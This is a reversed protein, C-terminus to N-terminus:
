DKWFAVVEKVKATLYLDKEELQRLLKQLEEGRELDALYQIQQILFDENRPWLRRASELCSAVAVYNKLAM